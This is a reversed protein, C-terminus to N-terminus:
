DDDDSGTHVVDDTMRCRRTEVTVGLDRADIDIGVFNGSRWSLDVDADDAVALRHKALEDVRDGLADVRIVERCPPPRQRIALCRLALGRPSVLRQVRRWDM